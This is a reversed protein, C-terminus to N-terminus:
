GLASVREALQTARQQVTGRVEVVPVVIGWSQEVLMERLVADVRRRLRPAEPAHIRDPSEIPVYVVLDLTALATAAAIVREALSEGPRLAALYALYDAPSRDFIAPCNAAQASALTAVSQDFLLEIDDPTPPDGFPHGRDTLLYYPEDVCAMGPFRHQLELLLTSKGTAHSGSVAIRM